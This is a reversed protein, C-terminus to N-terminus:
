RCRRVDVTIGVVRGIGTTRMPSPPTPFAMKDWSSEGGREELNLKTKIALERSDRERGRGAEGKVGLL